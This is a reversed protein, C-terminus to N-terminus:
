RYIFIEICTCSNINHYFTLQRVELKVNNNCINNLIHELKGSDKLKYAFSVLVGFEVPNEYGPVDLLTPGNVTVHEIEIDSITSQM